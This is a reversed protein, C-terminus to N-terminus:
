DSADEGPEQDRDQFFHHLEASVPAGRRRRLPVYFIGTIILGFAVGGLHAFWAVGGGAGTNLATVGYIVQLFIWFGLVIYAPVSIIFIFVLTHVRAKPYMLLYGALVGAIAGSAGLLPNMSNANFVV